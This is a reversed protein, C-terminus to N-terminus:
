NLSPEPLIFAATQQFMLEKVETKMYRALPLRSINKLAEAEDKAFMVIWLKSRDESLAYNLILGENMM